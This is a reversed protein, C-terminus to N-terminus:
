LIGFINKRIIKEDFIIDRPYLVTEDSLVSNTKCKVNVPTFMADIEYLIYKWQWEFRSLM